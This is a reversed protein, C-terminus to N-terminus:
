PARGTEGARLTVATEVVKGDPKTITVVYYGVPLRRFQSTGAKDITREKKVGVDPSYVVVADGADVDVIINGFAHQAQAHLSLALLMGGALLAPFWRRM